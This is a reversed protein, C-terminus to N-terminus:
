RFFDLFNQELLRASVVRNAELIQEQAAFETTVETVDIDEVDSLIAIFSDRLETNDEKAIAVRNTRAGNTTTWTLVQDLADTLQPLLASIQTQDGSAITTAADQLLQMVDVPGKFVEEGNLNMTLYEGTSIEVDIDQGPAGGIYAGTDDFPAAGSEFGAFIFRDGYKANANRLVEDFVGEMEAAAQQYEADSNLPNNAATTLELARQLREVVNILSVDTLTNFAEATLINREYQEFNSVMTRLDMAHTTSVPDDSPRNIKKQTMLQEQLRYYRELNTSINRSASQFVMNTTVRV